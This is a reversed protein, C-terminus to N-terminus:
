LGVGLGGDVVLVEGTIYSSAPSALFAVARAVERPQGPRGLATSSTVRESWDTPMDATMDTEIFGPAVANVRIGRSGVEAALSKTFGLLGAKSASYNTQGVNGVMGVLSSINVISGSRMRMMPRLARQTTQLTGILNVEVVRRWSEPKMRMFLGDDNIGANNVLIEVPGLDREISSFAADVSEADAVDLDVAVARGGSELIMEVLHRAADHGSRYGVAMAAGYEALEECVARGIGRSGGSVLCVRNELNM